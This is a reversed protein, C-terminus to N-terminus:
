PYVEIEPTIYDLASEVYLDWEEAFKEIAKYDLECGYDYLMQAKEEISISVPKDHGRIILLEILCMIALIAIITNKKM